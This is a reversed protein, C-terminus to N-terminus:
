EACIARLAQWDADSMAPGRGTSAARIAAARDPSAPHTSVFEPVQEGPGNEAIARDFFGALSEGAIDARNLLAVGFEDAVREADRTYSSQLLTTTGLVIVTSGSVDGILLGLLTALGLQEVAQELPHRYAVHGIEHALVGAVEAGDAAADILGSFILIQGGPLAFANAQPMALVRVTLPLPLDAEAALRATLRDLAARGAPTACFRPKGAGPRHALAEAVEDVLTEGWTAEQAPPILRVALGALWPVGFLLLLALSAVAGGSWLLIPRWHTRWGGRRRRLNPCHALLADYAAPDRITLRAAADGDHSLRLPEDARYRAVLRVTAAPWLIPGTGGGEANTVEIRVGAGDITVAAPRPRATRGDFWTAQYSGAPSV